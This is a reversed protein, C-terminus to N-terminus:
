SVGDMLLERALGNGRDILNEGAPFVLVRAVFLPLLAM